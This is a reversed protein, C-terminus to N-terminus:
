NKEGSAMRWIMASGKTKDGLTAFLRVALERRIDVERGPFLSASQAPIAFFDQLFPIDLPRAWRDHVVSRCHRALARCSKDYDSIVRFRPPPETLREFAVTLLDEGSEDVIEPYFSFAIKGGPRLCAAAQQISKAVNPLIFISANYLAYDFVQGDVVPALNEGDGVVLRVDSSACLARGAAVMKSSLDVGLVRCALRANLVRASIGSGCGIDLVTSGPALNISQALRWALDAFFRHKKEFAQYLRVGRDFNASVAQKVKDSFNIACM